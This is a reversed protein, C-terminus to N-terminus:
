KRVELLYLPGPRGLVEEEAYSCAVGKLFYFKQEKAKVSFTNM